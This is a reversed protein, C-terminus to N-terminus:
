GRRRALGAPDGKTGRIPVKSALWLPSFFGSGVALEGLVSARKEPPKRASPPAKSTERANGRLAVEPRIPRESIDARKGQSPFRTPAETRASEEWASLFFARRKPSKAARGPTTVGQPRSTARTSINRQIRHLVFARPAFRGSSLRREM